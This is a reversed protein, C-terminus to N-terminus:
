PFYRYIDKRHLVRIFTVFDNQIKIGIRYDGIRIRYYGSEGQLKRMSTIQSATEAKEVNEIAKKVQARFDGDNTRKRLDRAFSKKFDTKM